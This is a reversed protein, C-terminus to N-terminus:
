RQIAGPANPLPPVPTVTRTAMGPQAFSATGVPPAATPIAGSVPQVNSGAQPPSFLSTVNNAVAGAQQYIGMAKQGAQQGQQVMQQVNQAGGMSAMLDRAPKLNPDIQLASNLHQQTAPINKRTFNLYAMQYQAMAPSEVQGLEDLAANANGSDLLVGALSARFGRNKPQLNVAKRLEDKANKLNGSRAYINGLEAYAEATGPAADIAKQYFEIAKTSDKQNDYLRAM